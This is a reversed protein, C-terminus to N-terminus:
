GRDTSEARPRTQDGNQLKLAQTKREVELERAELEPRKLAEERQLVLLERESLTTPPAVQALPLLNLMFTGNLLPWTHVM